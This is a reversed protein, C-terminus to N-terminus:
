KVADFSWGFHLGRNSERKEADRGCVTSPVTQEADSAGKRAFRCWERIMLVLSREEIFVELRLHQNKANVLDTAVSM